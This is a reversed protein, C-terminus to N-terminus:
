VEGDEILDALTDLEDSQTTRNRERLNNAITRRVREEVADCLATTLRDVPGSGTCLVTEPEGYTHPTHDEKKQCLIRKM